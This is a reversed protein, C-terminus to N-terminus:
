KKINSWASERITDGEKYAACYEISLVAMEFEHTKPDVLVFSTYGQAWECKKSVVIRGCHNNECASLILISLIILSNKM